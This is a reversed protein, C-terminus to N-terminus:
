KPLLDLFWFGSKKEANPYERYVTDGVAFPIEAKFIPGAFCFTHFEGNEGCPDIGPPLDRIFEENLHRGVFSSDVLAANACIVIAQFGLGIFEELLQRTDKKWLPFVGTTGVTSLQQERYQRLDELFIDGFAAQGYGQARLQTMRDHVIAEYEANTPQGPMDMRGNALGTAAVQQALLTDRLGHMSVRHHDVNVSTLLYDVSYQDDQQLYHLALASDKGSSWNLYTKPKAM